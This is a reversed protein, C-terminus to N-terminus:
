IAVSIKKKGEIDINNSAKVKDAAAKNGAKSAAKMNEDFVKKGEKDEAHPVLAM